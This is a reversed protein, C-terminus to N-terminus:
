RSSAILATRGLHRALRATVRRHRREVLKALGDNTMGLKKAIVLELLAETGRATAGLQPVSLRQTHGTHGLDNRARKAAVIWREVGEAGNLLARAPDGVYDILARLREDLSIRRQLQENVVRDVHQAFEDDATMAARVIKRLRSLKGDSMFNDDFGLVRYIQEAVIVLHLANNEVYQMPLFRQALLTGLVPRLAEYAGFWASVLDQWPMDALRMVLDTPVVVGDGM